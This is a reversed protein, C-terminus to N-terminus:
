QDKIWKTQQQTLFTTPFNLASKMALKYNSETVKWNLLLEEYAICGGEKLDNLKTKWINKGQKINHRPTNNELPYLIETARMPPKAYNFWCENKSKKRCTHSHRHIQRTVLKQLELDNVPLQCCISNDIVWWYFRYCYCWWWKILFYFYQHM